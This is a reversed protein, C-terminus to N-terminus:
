GGAAGIGLMVNHFCALQLQRESGGATASSQRTLGM